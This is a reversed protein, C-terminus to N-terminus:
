FVSKPDQHLGVLWGRDGSRRLYRSWSCCMAGLQGRLLGEPGGLGAEHWPGAAAANDEAAVQCPVCRRSGVRTVPSRRGSSTFDQRAAITSTFGATAVWREQLLRPSALAPHASAAREPPSPRSNAGLSKYGGEASDSTGTHLLHRTGRCRQPFGALFPAPNEPGHGGGRHGVSQLAPEEM